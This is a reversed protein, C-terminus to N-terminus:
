YKESSRETMNQSKLIRINANRAAEILEIKIKNKHNFEIFSNVDKPFCPGAYGRKGNHFINMYRLIGKGIYDSASFGTKVKGYDAGIKECIDYLHNAYVIQISGYINHAYKILEAEKAKLIKHYKGKPLIKSIKIAEKKSSSTAGILQRDPKAFDKKASIRSLFEPNFIFRQDPYEKQLTDTTGPWVTSKIVVTKRGIIKSVVERVISFNAHKKEFDFPTPVSVFIISCKSNIENWSSQPFGRRKITSYGLVKYGKNKFYSYVESGVMGTHGIVGIVEKKM